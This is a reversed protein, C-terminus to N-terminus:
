LEEGNLHDNQSFYKEIKAQYSQIEDLPLLLDCIATIEFVGSNQHTEVLVQLEKLEKLAHQFAKEFRADVGLTNFGKLFERLQEYRMLPVVNEEPNLYFQLREHRLQFLVLSSLPGLTKKRGVRFSLKEEIESDAENLWIVGLAEDIILTLFFPDLCQQLKMRHDVIAQFWQTNQNRIIYRHKFLRRLCGAMELESKTVQSLTM